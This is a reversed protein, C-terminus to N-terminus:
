PLMRQEPLRTPWGEPDRLRRPPRAGPCLPFLDNSLRLLPHSFKIVNSTLRFPLRERIRDSSLSINRIFLRPCIEEGRLVMNVRCVELFRELCKPLPSRGVRRRQDRKQFRVGVEAIGSVHLLLNETEQLPTLQRRCLCFAQMINYQVYDLTWRPPTLETVVSPQRPFYIGGCKACRKL